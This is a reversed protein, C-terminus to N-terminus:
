FYLPSASMVAQVTMSFSLLVGDGDVPSILEHGNITPDSVKQETLEQLLDAWSCRDSDSTSKSNEGQAPVELVVHQTATTWQCIMVKAVEGPM